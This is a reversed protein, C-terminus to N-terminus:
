QEKKPLNGISEDSSSTNSHNKISSERSQNRKGLVMQADIDIVTQSFDILPCEKDAEAELAHLEEKTEIRKLKRVLDNTLNRLEM